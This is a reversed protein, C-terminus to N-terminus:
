MLDSIAWNQEPLLMSVQPEFIEKQRKNRKKCNVEDIPDVGIRAHYVPDSFMIQIDVHVM